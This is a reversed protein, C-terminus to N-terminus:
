FEPNVGSVRLLKIKLEANKIELGSLGGQQGPKIIRATHITVGETSQLIGESVFRGANADPLGAQSRFNSVTNPNVTTWYEGWPGSKGGWVRYVKMGKALGATTRLDSPLARRIATQIRRASNLTSKLDKPASKLDKAAGLCTYTTSFLHLPTTCLDFLKVLGKGCEYLAFPLLLLRTPAFFQLPLLRLDVAFEGEDPGLLGLDDSFNIPNQNAYTYRNLGSSLGIPDPEVYRGTIPDYDRFFNQHLGTEADFYQGPLRLPNAVTEVNPQAAGFSAYATSWATAGASTTLKRPTGLHDNHYYSYAGSARQFLPATTWSTGPAYGYSRIVNGSADFEAALGEATYFFYTRNGGVEKWLRQGFPDYAYRGRVIGGGDEARILRSQEDYFFRMEGSPGPRKTLNGAADYEYSGVDTTRLENNNGYSWQSALAPNGPFRNGAADYGYSESGLAPNEASTLRYADDYAYRYTGHETTIERILDGADLSYQYDLLINESGDRSTIRKPQLRDDYEFQQVSGGPLGIQTPVLWRRANVTIEGESPITVSQLQDNGDYAYGYTVGDPATYTQVLGNRYYTYQAGSAFSGFNVESSTIRGLADPVYTGSSSGDAYASLIGRADYTYEISRSPTAGGAVTYTREFQLQGKDDYQYRVEQNRADVASLLNGTPDYAYATLAGSPQLESALRGIKDHQLVTTLQRPDTVRLTQGWKDWQQQSEHQDTLKQRVLRSLADYAYISTRADATTLSTLNGVPDYTRRATLRRGGTEV